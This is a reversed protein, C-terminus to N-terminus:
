FSACDLPLRSHVNFYLFIQSKNKFFSNLIICDIRLNTMTKTLCFYTMLKILVVLSLIFMLNTLLPFLVLSLILVLNLIALDHILQLKDLIYKQFPTLVQNLKFHLMINCILQFKKIIGHCQKLFFFNWEVM